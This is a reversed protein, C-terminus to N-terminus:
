PGRDGLVLQLDRDNSKFDYLATIQDDALYGGVDVLEGTVAGPCPRGTPSGACRHAPSTPRHIVALETADGLLRRRRGLHRGAQHPRRPTSCGSGWAAPTVVTTPGGSATGTGNIYPLARYTHPKNPDATWDQYALPNNLGAAIRVFGAGDNRAM